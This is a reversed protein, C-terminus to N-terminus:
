IQIGKFFSEILFFSGVEIDLNKQSKKQKEENKLSIIKLILFMTHWSDLFLFFSLFFLVFKHTM